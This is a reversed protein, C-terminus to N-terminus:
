PCPYGVSIYSITGDCADSPMSEHDFSWRELGQAIVGPLSQKLRSNPLRCCTIHVDMM